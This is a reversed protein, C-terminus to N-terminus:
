KAELKKLIQTSLEEMISDKLDKEMELAHKLSLPSGCKYCSEVTQENIFECRTCVVNKELRKKVEEGGYHRRMRNAVGDIDLRGYVEVFHTVSHGHRQAALDIPMNEKKDLTCASHRLTYFDRNKNIGARLVIKKIRKKLADYEYRRITYDKATDKKPHSKENFEMIWLPDDAKKTPHHNYWKLFHPACRQCPVARSGTKGEKVNFLVVDKKVIVDGYNLDIFESPRFGADLQTLIAAGLQVSTAYKSFKLGDEWTWMDEPSLSRRQDRKPASKIDKFGKPLEDDNLWRVLRKSVNKITEIYGVSCEQKLETFIRNIKDRNHMDKSIDPTKVLLLKIHKFFKSKTAPRVDYSLLFRRVQEKNKKSINSDEFFRKEDVIAEADYDKIPM